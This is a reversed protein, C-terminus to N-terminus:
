MNTDIAFYIGGAAAMGGPGAGIIAVKVGAGPAVPKDEPALAHDTVFRKVDRIALPEDLHNRVCVRECKHDCLRGLM